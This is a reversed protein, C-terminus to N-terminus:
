RKSTIVDSILGRESETVGVGGLARMQGTTASVEQPQEPAPMSFAGPNAANRFEGQRLTYQNQPLRNTTFNAVQQNSFRPGDGSAPFWVGRGANYVAIDGASNKLFSSNYQDVATNHRGVAGKYKRADQMYSDVADQFENVERQLAARAM